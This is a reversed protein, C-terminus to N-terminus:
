IRANLRWETVLAVAVFRVDSGQPVLEPGFCRLLGYM